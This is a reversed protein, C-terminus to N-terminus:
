KSPVGDVLKDAMLLVHRLQIDIAVSQEFINFNSFFDLVFTIVGFQRIFLNVWIGLQVSTSSIKWWNCAYIVTM